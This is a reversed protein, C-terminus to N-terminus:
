TKVLSLQEPTFLGARLFDQIVIETMESAFAAEYRIDLVYAKLRMKLLSRGQHVENNIIVAIPKNLYVYRSVAAARYAIKKAQILDIDPPLYFEAVVQANSEGANTNSISQNMAEGNPISVLSDDLTVIRVSRLGIQVVEGYYNGIEIKDGVQFPRDLLIMIGGFINKLIDQSAFGIAVGASAALALMTQWPLAYINAVILYVAMAWGIMPIIPILRKIALRLYTSREAMKELTRTLFKIIFLTALFLALTWFIRGFTLPLESNPETIQWGDPLSRDSQEHASGPQQSQTPEQAYLWSTGPLCLWIVLLAISFISTQKLFFCVPKMISRPSFLKGMHRHTHIAKYASTIEKM